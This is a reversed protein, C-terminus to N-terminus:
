RVPIPQQGNAYVTLLGLAVGTASSWAGLAHRVYWTILAVCACAAAGYALEFGIREALGVLAYQIPHINPQNFLEFLVLCGITLLVFLMAYKTARDAMTYLDVLDILRVSARDAFEASGSAAITRDVSNTPGNAKGTPEDFARQVYSRWREPWTTAISVIRWRASFGDETTNRDAPLTLGEFSSHPLNLSM